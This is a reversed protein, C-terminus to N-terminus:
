DYGQTWDYDRVARQYEPSGSSKPKNCAPCLEQDERANWPYAPLAVGDRWIVFGQGDCICCRAHM